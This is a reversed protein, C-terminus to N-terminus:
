APKHTVPAASLCGMLDARKLWRDLLAMSYDSSAPRVEALLYSAIVEAQDM